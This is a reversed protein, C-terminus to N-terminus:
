SISIVGSNNWVVGATAPAITPLNAAWATSSLIAALQSLPMTCLAIQGNQEQQITITEAGTLPQPLGHVEIM